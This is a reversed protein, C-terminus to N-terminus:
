ECSVRAGGWRTCVGPPPSTFTQVGLSSGSCPRRQSQSLLPLPPPSPWPLPPWVPSPQACFLSLPLLPPLSVAPDAAQRPGSRLAPLCPPTPPWWAARLWSGAATNQGFPSKDTVPLCPPCLLSSWPSSLRDQSRCGRGEQEQAQCHRVLPGLWRPLRRTETCGHPRPIVAHSSPCGRPARGLGLLPCLTATGHAGSIPCYPPPPPSSLSPATWVQGRRLPRM